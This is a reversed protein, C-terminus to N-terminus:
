GTNNGLRKQFVRMEKAAQNDGQREAVEIGRTFATEAEVQRGCDALARGHLKWAASYDPDLTVARALHESATETEGAQFCMEGLSFRLLATENGAALMAELQQRM